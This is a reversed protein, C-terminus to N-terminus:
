SEGRENSLFAPSMGLSALAKEWVMSAETEFVLKKTAPALLWYHNRLLEEELQGPAWGAHGIVIFAHDPGTGAAFDHLMDLSATLRAPGPIKEVEDEDPLPTHLIFARKMEVPGGLGLFLQPLASFKKVENKDFLDELKMQSLRRNIIVGSAGDRKSYASIYVVSQAFFSEVLQPSAILLFGTLDSFSPTLIKTM